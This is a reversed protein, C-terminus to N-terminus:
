KVAEQVLTEALLVQAIQVDNISIKLQDCLALLEGAKTVIRKQEDFPPVSVIFERILSLNLNGQSVGKGLTNRESYGRGVPSNLWLVIYESFLYNQFPKLLGTSVYIAFELDIDIITAEGIGAGVRSLLIDRYEPKRNKIYNQYHEESVFRCKEPMFKFPKVCQASIFPRGSETYTPTQHTGDTILSCLDQLHSFGWGDPLKFLKEDDKIIPLQKQKKIKKDKILLLKEQAIKELLVLASEDNPNQPVLKGMVALQLITKKLQDIAHETTFLIDFYEAIRTWNGQFEEADTSNTLTSLLVEVLTQHTSISSETQSELLDCLAMLEDVKAVIRQQEELPPLVVPISEWKGKNIIAITTSASLEWAMNQFYSASLANFLYKTIDVYPTISNIQQNFSCDRDIYSCKGITGICVMLLSSAPAIRGLSEAGLSSLAENSYNIRGGLIDGPKIFPIDNGFYEPKNRSPTGGTQTYGLEGLRAWEWGDPLEFPKEGDSIKPLAKSNKIKKDKVLLAKETAIRGLLESAPEDNLDQPVLKGRVALELILERLKKIGTLEIKKNSGRGTANRKKIANTWIDINDTVLSHINDNASNTM